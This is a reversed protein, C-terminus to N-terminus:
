FWEEHKGVDYELLHVVEPHQKLLEEAGEWTHLGGSLIIETTRVGDKVIPRVKTEGRLIHKLAQESLEYEDHEGFRIPYSKAM